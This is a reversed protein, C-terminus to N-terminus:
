QKKYSLLKTIPNWNGYIQFDICLVLLACCRNKHDIKNMM